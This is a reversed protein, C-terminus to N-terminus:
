AGDEDDLQHYPSECDEVFVLSPFTIKSVEVENSEAGIYMYYDYGFHLYAGSEGKLTTWCAERLNLRILKKLSEGSYNQGLRVDKLWLANQEESGPPCNLTWREEFREVKLSNVHHERLFILAADVYADETSFYKDLTLLGDDFRKGVDAASIWDKRLYAGNGARYMPNYKTIRLATM